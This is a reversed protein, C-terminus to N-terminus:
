FLGVNFCRQCSAIQKMVEQSPLGGPQLKLGLVAVVCKDMM